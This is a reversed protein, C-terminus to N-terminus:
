RSPRQSVLRMGGGEGKEFRCRAAFQPTIRWARLADQAARAPSQLVHRRVAQPTPSAPASAALTRRGPEQM